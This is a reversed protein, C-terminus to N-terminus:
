SRKGKPKYGVSRGCSATESMSLLARSHAASQSRRACGERGVQLHAKRSAACHERPATIGADGREAQGGVERWMKCKELHAAAGQLVVAETAHGDQLAQQQGVAM